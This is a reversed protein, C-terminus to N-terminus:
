LLVKKNGEFNEFKNVVEDIKMLLDNTISYETYSKLTNKVGESDKSMWKCPHHSLFEHELGEEYSVKEFSDDSYYLSIMVGYGTCTRTINKTASLIASEKNFNTM